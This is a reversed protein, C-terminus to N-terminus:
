EGSAIAIAMFRNLIYSKKLNVITKLEIDEKAKVGLLDLAKKRDLKLEKDDIKIELCEVGEDQKDAKLETVIGRLIGKNKKLLIRTYDNINITGGKFYANDVIVEDGENMVTGRGPKEWIICEVERGKGSEAQSIAFTFIDKSYHKGLGHVKKVFGRLNLTRNEPFEDLWEHLDKKIVNISGGYGLALEGKSEYAKMIKIEDGLGIGNMIKTDKEWLKLLSTSGEDEIYM